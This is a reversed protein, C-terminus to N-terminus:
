VTIGSEKVKNGVGGGNLKNWFSLLNTEFAGIGVLNVPTECTSVLKKKAARFTVNASIIASTPRTSAYRDGWCCGSALM